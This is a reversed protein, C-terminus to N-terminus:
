QKNMKKQQSTRWYSQEVILIFQEYHLLVIIIVFINCFRRCIWHKNEGQWYIWWYFNQQNYKKILMKILDAFFINKM